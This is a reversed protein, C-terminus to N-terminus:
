AGDHEDRISGVIKELLDEMTVIGIV